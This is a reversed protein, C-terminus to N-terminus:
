RDSLFGNLETLSLGEEVGYLWREMNVKIAPWEHDLMAFWATDRNRGKYIMHQRFIGEFKFGLRLAATHSRANLADCKWEARRYSLRDFSECLMLYIAETNVKTRQAELGYWIHGLELCRMEPVINLFSVMGLRKDATNDVVAFFFPDTSQAQEELWRQMVALNAFPGYGMYTWIRHKEENGHSIAFLDPVDRDAYLPLLSIFKGRM